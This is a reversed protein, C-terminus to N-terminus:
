EPKKTSIERERLKITDAETEATDSKLKRAQMKRKKLNDRLASRLKSNRTDKDRNGSM